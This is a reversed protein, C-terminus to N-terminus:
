VARACGARPPRVSGPLRGQVSARGRTPRDSAFGVERCPHSSAELSFERNVLLGM